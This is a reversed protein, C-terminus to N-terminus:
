TSKTDTYATKIFSKMFDNVLQKIQETDVPYYRIHFTHVGQRENAKGEKEEYDEDDGSQQNGPQGGENEKRNQCDNLQKKPTDRQKTRIDAPRDPKTTPRNPIGRPNEEVFRIWPLFDAVKTYVAVGNQCDKFGYSTIGAVVIENDSRRRCVLPTGSDGQCAEINNPASGACFQSPILTGFMKQCMSTPYWQVQGYLLEDPYNNRQTRGWGAIICTPLFVDQQRALPLPRICSTFAVEHPLTLVALDNHFEATFNNLKHIADPTVTMSVPMTRRNSSGMQVTVSVVDDTFCHQASLIHKSDIITGGCITSYNERNLKLLAVWPFQCNGAQVGNWIKR